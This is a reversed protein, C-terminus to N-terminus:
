KKFSFEVTAEQGSSVTVEQTQKGLTEHWVEITHPGSPVNELRFTGDAGTVAYYPHDAVVVWAGMWNHVDCSIRIRESRKFSTDIQKVQAPQAKNFSRNKKSHSHVNHLIGDNNLIQLTQGKPVVVVHPIFRCGRQDLVARHPPDPFPKGSKIGKISAVAWQIGKQESVVLDEAMIPDQHCPKDETKVALPKRQPVNGDFRVVGVITGGSQVSGGEYRKGKADVQSASLSCVLGAALLLMMKNTTTM